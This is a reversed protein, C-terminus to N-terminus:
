EKLRPFLEVFNCPKHNIDLQYKLIGDWADTVGGSTNILVAETPHGNESAPLKAFYGGHQYLEKLVTSNDRLKFALRVIGRSRQLVPLTPTTLVSMSTHRVNM